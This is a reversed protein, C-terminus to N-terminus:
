EQMSQGDDITRSKKLKRLYDSFLVRRMLENVATSFLFTCLLPVGIALSAVGYWENRHNYLCGWCILFAFFKLNDGFCM